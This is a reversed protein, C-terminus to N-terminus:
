PPPGLRLTAGSGTGPLTLAFMGGEAWDGILDDFHPSFVHASQGGALAFKSKALDSLDYVARYGAGHRHRFPVRSSSPAFSGRNVTYDDGDTAASFGGLWSLGPLTGFVPHTFRAVHWQGWRWEADDSGANGQVWALADAWATNVQADCSEAAPTAIDDCWTTKDTLLSKILAPRAGFLDGSLEGLEDSILRAKLKEMWLALVLPGIRDRSMTGDWADMHGRLRQGFVDAPQLRTLLLPLMERAM